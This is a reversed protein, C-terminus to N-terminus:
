AKAADFRLETPISLHIPPLEPNARRQELRALATEALVERSWTVAPPVPGKGFLPRYFEAYGEVTVWGVMEFDRGPVLGLDGAARALAETKDQWMALVATPRDPRSLLRRAEAALEVPDLAATEIRLEPRL